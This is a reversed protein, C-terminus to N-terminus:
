NSLHSLCALSQLADLVHHGWDSAFSFRWEWVVDALDVGQDLADLGTRLARYIDAFGDSLSHVVPEPQDAQCPDFVEWFTDRPLLPSLGEYMEQWVSAPLGPIGDETVPESDPLRLAAAYLDTLSIRLQALFEDQPLGQGQLQTDLLRCYETALRRFAATTALSM